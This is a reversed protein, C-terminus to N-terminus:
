RLSIDQRSSNGACPFVVLNRPVPLSVRHCLSCTLKPEDEALCIAIEWTTASHLLASHVLVSHWMQIRKVSRVGDIQTIGRYSRDFHRAVKYAGSWPECNTNMSAVM